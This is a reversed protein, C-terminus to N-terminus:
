GEAGEIGPDQTPGGTRDCAIRHSLRGDIGRAAMSAPRDGEPKLSPLMGAAAEMDVARPRTYRGTLELTSHRMCRQVVRPSVGAEDALTATQCRLARFNFVLGSADRYDIEAAALDVRLVKAEKDDPLPFVYSDAPITAVYPKLDDAMDRSVPLEAEV